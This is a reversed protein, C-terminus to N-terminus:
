SSMWFADILFFGNGIFSVIVLLILVTNVYGGTATREIPILENKTGSNPTVPVARDFNSESILNSDIAVATDASSNSFFM